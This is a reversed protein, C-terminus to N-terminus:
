KVEVAGLVLVRTPAFKEDLWLVDTDTEAQYMLLEVRYEGPAIDDPVLLAFDDNVAVDPRWLMTPPAPQRDVNAVKGNEDVLRVSVSYYANIKNFPLWTLAVPIIDARPV